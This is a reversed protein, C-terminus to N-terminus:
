QVVAVRRTMIRGEFDLKLFYIGEAVRGGRDDRLDWSIDREGAAAAGRYVTRLERGAIDHVALTVRSATPLALRVSTSTTAPNPAPRSLSLEHPASRPVDVTGSPTLLAYGSEHGNTDVASVKYFRGFPGVDVYAPVAPEAILSAPGPTFADTVGRYVRYHELDPEANPAWQLQTAGATYTGALQAPTGPALNDVSYWAAAGTAFQLSNTADCAVVKFTTMLSDRATTAMFYYYYNSSHAAPVSGVFEWYYTMANRGASVFARQGPQPDGDGSRLLRAGNGLAQLAVDPPTSRFVQYHDVVVPAPPYPRDDYDLYSSTWTVTVHGGNDPYTDYVSM